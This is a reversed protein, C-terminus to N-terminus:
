WGEKLAQKVEDPSLGTSNALERCMSDFRRDAQGEAPDGFFVEDVSWGGPEPPSGGRGTVLFSSIDGGFRDGCVPALSVRAPAFATPLGV